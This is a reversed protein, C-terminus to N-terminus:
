PGCGIELGIARYIAGLDAADPSPYYDTPSTAIAALLAADVDAGLGVTFVRVASARLRDAEALAPGAAGGGDSLLVVVPMRDAAGDRELVDGAQALGRDIRTGPMTRLGALAARVAAPDRSLGGTEDAATTHFSVVGVRVYELDFLAVFDTAAARAAALKSDGGPGTPESMSSSADLVLVVDATAKAPFCQRRYAVPLFAVSSAEATATATPGATPTPTASATATPPLTPVPTDPPATASPEPTCPVREVRLIEVELPSALQEQIRQGVIESEPPVVVLWGLFDTVYRVANFDETYVGFEGYAKNDGTGPPEDRGRDNYYNGLARLAQPRGSVIVVGGHPTDVQRWSSIPREPISEHRGDVVVGEPVNGDSYRGPVADETFDVSVRFDLELRDIFPVVETPLPPINVRGFAALVQVQGPYAFGSGDAELVLRVPGQKVPNFVFGDAYQGVEDSEETYTEDFVITPLPIPGIRPAVRVYVDGRLKTRDLVDVGSDYLELTELGVFRGAQVLRYDTGQLTRAQRDWEVLTPVDPPPEADVFVSMWGEVAPDLPDTVRVDFRAAGEPAADPWVCAPARGGLYRALAVLEDNGDVAEDERVLYGGRDSREDIQFPADSWDAGATDWRLVRIADLPVGTTEPIRGLEFVVPFTPRDITSGAVVPPEPGLAAPTAGTADGRSLALVATAAAAIVLAASRVAAVVRRAAM